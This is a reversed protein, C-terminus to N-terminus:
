LAHNDTARKKTSVLKQLLSFIGGTVFCCFTILLILLGLTICANQKKDASFTISNLKLYYFGVRVVYIHVLYILLTHRGIYSFICKKHTMLCMISVMLITALIYVVIRFMLGLLKANPYISEYSANGALVQRNLIDKTYLHWILLFIVAVLMLACTKHSLSPQKEDMNNKKSAVLYGAIFYPFFYVTRGVAFSHGISEDFGILLSFAIAVCFYRSLKADKGQLFKTLIYAYVMFLLYWCCYKPSALLNLLKFDPVTCYEFITFLVQMMLYCFFMKIIKREVPTTSIQAFYGNIFIFLPMHFSYILVWLKPFLQFDNIYCELLHGSVVALILFGKLNDWYYVRQKPMVSTTLKTM